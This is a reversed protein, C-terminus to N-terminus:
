DPDQEAWRMYPRSIKDFYRKMAQPDRDLESLSEVELIQKTYRRTLEPTWQKVLGSKMEQFWRVYKPSTILRHVSSSLKQPKYAGSAGDAHKSKGGTAGAARAGEEARVRHRAGRARSDGGSLGSAGGQAAGEMDERRQDIQTEDDNLEVLVVAFIDGPIKGERGKFGAFPHQDSEEDLWLKFHQGVSSNDGWSALMADSHYRMTGTEVDAISAIFRTGARGGRRQTFRKFPHLRDYADGTIRFEVTRGGKLLWSANLLECDNYFAIQAAPTPETM